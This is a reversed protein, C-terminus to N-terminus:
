AGPRKDQVVRHTRRFMFMSVFVDFCLLVTMFIPTHVSSPPATSSVTHIHTHTDYTHTHTHTEHPPHSLTHTHTMPTHSHTHTEHPPHCSATERLYLFFCSLSPLFYLSFLCLSFLFISLFFLDKGREKERQLSYPFLFHRELLNLPSTARPSESPIQIQLPARQCLIAPLTNTRHTAV